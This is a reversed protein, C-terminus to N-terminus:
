IGELLGPVEGHWGREGFVHLPLEWGRGAGTLACSGVQEWCSSAEERSEPVVASKVSHTIAGRFGAFPM